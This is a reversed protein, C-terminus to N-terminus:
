HRPTTAQLLELIRQYQFEAAIAALSAAMPPDREAIQEIAHGVAQADLDVLARELGHRLDAPLAGLAAPDITLAAAEASREFVFEVGLHKALLAFLDHERIPKTLFANAGAALAQQQTDESSSASIMVIPLETVTKLRRLRRIAECGDIGPMANDMLVADPQLSQARAVGDLGDGAELVKFGLPRLIDALVSRNEAIDDVVLLTLRRGRYGVAVEQPASVGIAEQAVPLSLAFEFTSGRGLESRVAIDGGMLRVLQRSIALGLGTGGARRAKDGVQEFPQFLSGLHDSHIGIGTDTVAFRIYVQEDVVPGAEVRLVVQGRDTFKIANGLLNLLVQRLRKEDATVIRPLNDTQCHFAVKKEETRVRVIDAVGALFAALDITAPYLDLRGAEVKSLDLIDEILTLLHEGSQEITKLSRLGSADGGRQRQLIRAYGLIANLPTRLEHSMRALFASKAQNAVEAREKATALELNANQLADEARKAASRDEAIWITGARPDDRNQVYAITNVWIDSGDQRRMFLEQQFPIGQSLLPGATHGLSEYEEDSRYLIRAPLGVAAEDKFGYMEAFKPNYRLIRRDRTLVIAVPANQMMAEFERLTQNLTDEMRKAETRDELVWVTGQGTDAPAVSRCYVNCWVASGDAKRFLWDAHFSTGTALLAGAERVLREYNETDTCITADPKGMLETPSRYGFLEAARGNCHEILGNRTFLIGVSASELIAQQQDRLRRAAEEARRHETRDECIWITGEQPNNPNLIYAILNGWFDTGDLRRLYLETQFPRGQSLAPAARRGMEEFEEDSRFFTRTAEGIGHEGEIAFMEACKRNYRILRRDRTFFIAVSANTMIADMERLTRHLAEDTNKKETIDEVVWVTGLDTHAPDIAKAYVNCWVPTGDAKQFQWDIHFAKGTGLLPRALRGIADYSEPTPYIVTAPRGLLEDPNSRGFIEASRANCRQIIGDRTFVIGVSANELIATLELLTRSLDAQQLDPLIKTEHSTTTTRNIAHQACSTRV